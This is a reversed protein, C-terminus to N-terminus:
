TVTVTGYHDIETGPIKSTAHSTLWTRFTYFNEINPLTICGESVGWYGVPHIRFNGRRVGKITLFDSAPPTAAYLSFWDQRQTGNALDNMTDVVAGLRGGSQRDLIYYTGHPLPGNNPIATADPDNVFKGNWSFAMMSGLDLCQLISMRKRNLRFFCTASM